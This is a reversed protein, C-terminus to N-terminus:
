LSSAHRISQLWDLGLLRLGIFEEVGHVSYVVFVSVGHYSLAGHTVQLLFITKQIKNGIFVPKFM